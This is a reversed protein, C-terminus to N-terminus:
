RNEVDDSLQSVCKLENSYAPMAASAANEEPPMFHVMVQNEELM